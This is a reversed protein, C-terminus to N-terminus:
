AKPVPGPPSAGAEALLRRLALHGTATASVVAADPEALAMVTATGASCRVVTPVPAGGLVLVTGLARAAGVVAPGDWGPAGPGVALHQRLVARSGRDVSLSSSWSGAPEGCRGLVLEDRWWVTGGEGVEVRTEMQMRCGAAAVAPEPDWVLTAGDGVRASVALRAVADAPGRRAVASAVSRIILSAGPAVDIDLVADDGGVPTAAGSVLYICGAARRLTLMPTSRLEQLVLGERAPDRGSGCRIRVAARGIM